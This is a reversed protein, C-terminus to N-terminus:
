SKTLKSLKMFLAPKLPMPKQGTIFLGGDKESRLEPKPVGLEAKAKPNNAGALL